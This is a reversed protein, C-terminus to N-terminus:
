CLEAYWADGQNVRVKGLQSQKKKAPAPASGSEDVQMDTGEPEPVPGLGNLDINRQM